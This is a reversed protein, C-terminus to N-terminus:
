FGLAFRFMKVDFIRENEQMLTVQRVFFLMHHQLGVLKDLLILIYFYLSLSHGSTILLLCINGLLAIFQCRNGWTQDIDLLIPVDFNDIVNM